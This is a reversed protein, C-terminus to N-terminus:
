YRSRALDAAQKIMKMFGQRYAKEDTGIGHKATKEILNFSTQGKYDSNRLQMGFMTVASAWYFNNTTKLQETPKLPQKVLKSTQGDPEKYRLRLMGIENLKRARKKVRQEQYRLDPVKSQDQSSSNGSPILEYLATVSHGAGLEGADVSDDRFEEKALQRNVYGILRYAQVKAPNFEVQIKVDKAITTMTGGFEKVLTKKAELKNDVYTYNGNGKNSLKEMKSGQYNGTGFGLVSLFIGSERKKEILRTLAGDSTVGVNFDGDTALIVRNNGDEMFNQKAQKYALKIGKSGATSGGAELNNIAKTIKEKQNGPTSPLVLGSSGAYAVMSIRDESGLQDTLMRLSAKVLPLKNPSNMSGSVDVLFVLNSPPIESKPIKKGQLGIHLLQHDPEWPCQGGETNVAFPQDGEPGEYNYDFYNILEEIRIADKPPLEEDDLYRRTNAYSARDVDISFTSLPNNKVNKFTNAEIRDYDERNYQRRVSKRPNVYGASSQSYRKEQQKQLDGRFNAKQKEVTINRTTVENANIKVSDITFVGYNPHATKVQYDGPPLNTLRYKGASDTQTQKKLVEIQVRFNPIPKGTNVDLARGKLEGSQAIGLHVSIALLTATLLIPKQM